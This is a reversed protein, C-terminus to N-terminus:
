QKLLPIARNGLVLYYVGVPLHGLPITEIAERGLQGSFVVTGSVDTIRILEPQAEGTRDIFIHDKFPNPYVQPEPADFQLMRTVSFTAASDNDVMKLRYYNNALPAGDTFVYRAPQDTNGSAQVRGIATFEKGDASRQIEFFATNEERSTSWSLLAAGAQKEAHFEQLSLPLPADTSTITLSWSGISGTEPPAAPIIGNVYLKWTGNPDYGNFSDLHSSIGPPLDQLNEISPLYTGAVFDGGYSAPPYINADQDFTLNGTTTFFASGSKSFLCVQQGTPSELYAQNCVISTINVNYLTVTIKSTYPDLGSVALESPFPNGPDGSHTTIPQNKVFTTQAQATLCYMSLFALCATRSMKM